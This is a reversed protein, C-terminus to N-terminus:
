LKFDTNSNVTMESGDFLQLVANSNQDTAIREGELVTSGKQAMRTKKGSSATVQVQGNVSTFLGQTPTSTGAALAAPLNFVTLLQFSLILPIPKMGVKM